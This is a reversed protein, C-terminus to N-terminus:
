RSPGQNLQNIETYNKNLRLHLKIYQVYNIDTAHLGSSECSNTAYCYHVENTVRDSLYGTLIQDIEELKFNFLKNQSCLMWHSNYATSCIFYLEQPAKSNEM